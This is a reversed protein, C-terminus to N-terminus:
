TADSAAKEPQPIALAALNAPSALALRAAEARGDDDLAALIRNWIEPFESKYNPALEAFLPLAAFNLRPGYKDIIGLHMAAVSLLGGFVCGLLGRAERELAQEPPLEEERVGADKRAAERKAHLEAAKIVVNPDGSRILRALKADIERDSIKADGPANVAALELLSQVATSRVAAYGARRLSDKDGAYGALTAAKSASAGGFRAAAFKLQLESAGTGEALERWRQEGLPSWIDNEAM